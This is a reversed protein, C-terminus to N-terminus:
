AESGSAPRRNTRLYKRAGFVGSVLGVVAPVLCPAFTWPDKLQTMTCVEAVIWCVSAMNGFVLSWGWKNRAVCLSTIISMTSALSTTIFVIM